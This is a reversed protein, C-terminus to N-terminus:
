NGGYMRNIMVRNNEAQMMRDLTIDLQLFARLMRATAKAHHYRTLWGQYHAWSMRETEELTCDIIRTQVLQLYTKIHQNHNM